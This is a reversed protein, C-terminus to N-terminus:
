KMGTQNLGTNMNKIVALIGHIGEPSSIPYSVGM